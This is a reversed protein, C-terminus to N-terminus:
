ENYNAEKTGIKNQVQEWLGKPPDLEKLLFNELGALTVLIPLRRGKISTNASGDEFKEISISAKEKFAENIMKDLSSSMSEYVMKEIIDDLKDTNKM